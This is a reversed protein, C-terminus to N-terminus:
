SLISKDPGNKVLEFIANIHSKEFMEINSGPELSLNYEDDIKIIGFISKASGNIVCQQLTEALYTYLVLSITEEPINLLKSIYSVKENM